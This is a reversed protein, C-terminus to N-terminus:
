DAAPLSALAGRTWRLLTERQAPTLRAGPHALRYAWPPMAGSRLVRQINRLKQSATGPDAATAAWNSFDLRQRGRHVDDHVLWSIPAVAAYWPWRTRSSHCDDCAVRLIERVPPPSQMEGSVPLAVRRVPLAQAALLVCAPLALMVFRRGRM